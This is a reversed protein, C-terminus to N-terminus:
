FGDLVGADPTVDVCVVPGSGQATLRACLGSACTLGACPAPEVCIPGIRTDEVEVTACIYDMPCVGADTVSCPQTYLPLETTSCGVAGVAGALGVACVVYVVISRM